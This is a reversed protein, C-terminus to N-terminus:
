ERGVPLWHVDVRSHPSMQEAAGTQEYVERARPGLQPLEAVPVNRQERYFVIDNDSRAAVAEAEPLVEAVLRRFEAGAADGPVALLFVEAERRPRPGPTEPNAEDFAATIERQAEQPDPRNRFFIEAPGARELRAHLFGIAREELLGCIAATHDSKELCVNSLGRFQRRIQGQLGQDFEVIEDPTLIDLFQEAAEDLTRCGPPLIYLGPGPPGEPKDSAPKALASAIEELRVRCYGVDRLYEPLNGLLSRYVALVAQLVMLRYRQRPYVRMLDLIEGVRGRGHGVLAGVLPLLKTFTERAERDLDAHMPELTELLHKLRDTLQRIAEEAGALRFRPQEIFYVAMEALKVEAEAIIARAQEHLRGTLTGYMTSSESEAEPKGVIQTLKALVDCVAEPDDGSRSHLPALLADFALEPEKQLSERAAEHLRATLSELELQRRHWEDAVWRAIPERLHDSSKAGWREVLRRGFRRVAVELLRQRPWTLRYLGFTQCSAGEPRYLNQFAERSEDAVRGAPTLTEQLLAAAALDATRRLPGPDPSKPLTLLLCRHFPREPDCIAPEKNDFKAEYRTNPSSYHNLETLAAYANAVAQSKPTNRDVFPLLLVGTLHPQLYGMQLLERRATYAVDLFMGSGTAGAMGAVVYVRPRNTRLGLGTQRDAETLPDDSLFPELEQRLRQAILRYNDCFALRGFARWGNTAPTRPMQYLMHPGLWSDVSPMGERKLYHGPRNLRALVIERQALGAPAPFAGAEQAADADTDIYLWRLHPLATLPGFRDQVAQRLQRLVALGAEGLGVFLAPFLVGPGTKEPPAIGQSPMRGTRLVGSPRGPAAQVTILGPSTASPARPPSTLSTPGEGPVRLLPVASTRLAPPRDDRTESGNPGPTQTTAQRGPPPAAPAPGFPTSAYRLARVLDACCPFREDPRKSLARRIAERDGPPLPELDPAGSLHQMLLQRTSTGNFPRQGTLLEQYVIALSYQDCYRSLSGEFTEPAAYVPTVGGTVTARMGEFDKALGFDAVKIHNHVLFINQPKVDLHQIKYQSNMLDLAEASEEMYRLLEDRPIGPLGQTRCERFRDWLNRDALEMVIILQGQIVDFRELSLIYPHRITKVRNLAKLEQEAPRGDEGGADLRSSEAANLDGYVFKIAKLLGGPAEAKWVEGFGGRGIREILRYGPIPEEPHSIRITM